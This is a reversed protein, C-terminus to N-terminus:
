KKKGKKNEAEIILLNAGSIVGNNWDRRKCRPCEVPEREIRPIWKHSCKKCRLLKQTITEHKM